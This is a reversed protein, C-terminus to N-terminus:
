FMGEGRNQNNWLHTYFRASRVHGLPNRNNSPRTMSKKTRASLTNNKKTPTVVGWPGGLGQGGSFTRVSTKKKKQYDVFTVPCTLLFSCLHHGFQIDPERVRVGSESPNVVRWTEPSESTDSHVMFGPFWVGPFGPFRVPCELRPFFGGRGLKTVMQKKLFPERGVAIFTVWTGPSITRRAM